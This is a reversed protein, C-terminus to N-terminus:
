NRSDSRLLHFPFGTWKVEMHDAIRESIRLKLNKAENLFVEKIAPHTVARHAQHEIFHVDAMSPHGLHQFLSHLDHSVAKVDGLGATEVMNKLFIPASYRDAIFASKHRNFFIGFDKYNLSVKNETAVKVQFLEFVSKLWSSKVSNPRSTEIKARYSKMWSLFDSKFNSHRILYFMLSPDDILQILVKADQAKIGQHHLLWDVLEFHSIQSRRIVIHQLSNLLSRDQISPHNVIIDNLTLLNTLSPDRLRLIRDGLREKEDPFIKLKEQFEESSIPDKLHHPLPQLGSAPEIESTSVLHERSGISLRNHSGPQRPRILPPKINPIESASKLLAICLGLVTFLKLFM